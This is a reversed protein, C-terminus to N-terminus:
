SQTNSSSAGEVAETETSSATANSPSMQWAPIAAKGSGPKSGMATIRQAFSEAASASAEAETTPPTTPTAASAASTTPTTPPRRNLLLSKLSKIENQLDALNAAQTEKHKNILEPISERIRDVEEKMEKLEKDRNDNSTKIDDLTTTMTELSTDVKASSATVADVAKTTDSEIQKIRDEAAQFQADLNAKEIELDKSTPVAFFPGFVRKALQWVGYGVGGALVAAIFVDRWDYKPRPPVAPVAAAQLPGAVVTPAAPAKGSVRGMADEIEQSTLGKSELFAIKKALPSDQVKPDSLFKVASTVLEKSKIITNRKKRLSHSIGKKSGDHQYVGDKYNQKYWESDRRYLEPATSSSSSSSTSSPTRRKTYKEIRLLDIHSKISTIFGM